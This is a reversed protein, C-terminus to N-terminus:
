SQTSAVVYELIFLHVLWSAHSGLDRRSEWGPIRRCTMCMLLQALRRRYKLLMTDRANACPDLFELRLHYWSSITRRSKARTTHLYSHNNIPLNLRISYWLHRLRSQEVFLTRYPNM